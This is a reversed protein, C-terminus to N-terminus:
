VWIRSIRYAWFLLSFLGIWALIKAWFPTYKLPIKVIEKDGKIYIKEKNTVLKEKYTEAIKQWAIIQNKMEDYYIGAENDGSKKRSNIQKLVQNLTAQTISDCEPKATKVKALQIILSDLIAKNVQSEKVTDTRREIIREITHSSETPKSACGHLVLALLFAVFIFFLVKMFTQFPNEHPTNATM